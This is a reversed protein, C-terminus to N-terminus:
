DQQSLSKKGNFKMYQVIWDRGTDSPKSKLVGGVVSMKAEIMAALRPISADKHSVERGRFQVIIKVSHGENLWEGVKNLKVSFDNESINPGFTITKEETRRANERNKKDQEKKAKKKLYEEKKLDGIKCIFPNVNDNVIILDLGRDKAMHFAEEGKMVGLQTDDVDKLRVDGRLVRKLRDDM